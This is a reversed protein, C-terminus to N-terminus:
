LGVNKNNGISQSNADLMQKAGGKIFEEIYSGATEFVKELIKEEEPNFDSLVYAAMEGKGFSNGIGLRLRTFENSVLHYIISSVGNHGGDGGSLKIKIKGFDLNIDDHVVLLDPTEIKLTEIVEAAAVGSNNVYTTPKVLYYESNGLKGKCFYFSGKAPVFPLSNRSAFYDLLKFGINHRNNRYRDGPNGIGLIVRM